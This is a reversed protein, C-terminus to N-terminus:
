FKSKLWNWSQGIWGFWNNKQDDQPKQEQQPMVFAVVKEGNKQMDLEERAVKEIYDKDNSKSINDQLVQNSKQIEQIQKKYNSIKSILEQKKQYLGFNILILLVAAVISAIGAIKMWPKDQSFRGKQKKAFGAIM